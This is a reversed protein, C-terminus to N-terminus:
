GDSVGARGNHGQGQEVPGLCSTTHPGGSGSISRCTFALASGHESGRAVRSTNPLSLVSITVRHCRLRVLPTSASERTTPSPPGASALDPGDSFLACVQLQVGGAELKPLWRGAFPQDEGRFYVLEMLLDSHADALHM